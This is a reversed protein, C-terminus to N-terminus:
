GSDRVRMSLLAQQRQASRLANDTRASITSVNGLSKISSWLSRAVIVASKLIWKACLVGLFGDGEFGEFSPSIWIEPTAASSGIGATASSMFAADCGFARAKAFLIFPVPSGTRIVPTQRKQGSCPPSSRKKGAHRDLDRIGIRVVDELDVRCSLDARDLGARRKERNSSDVSALSRRRGVSGSRRTFAGIGRSDRNVGRDLAVTILASGLSVCERAGPTNLFGLPNANTM